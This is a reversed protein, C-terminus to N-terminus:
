VTLWYNLKLVLARNRNKFTDTFYNDTYVIFLDSMPKYRWQVRSNINFNNRQTNYQFFTTWFLNNTFNIETKPSILWLRTDGYEKPFHLLNYEINMAINWHPQSRVTVSSRIQNITGNYFQGVRIGSTFLINKRTDSMYEVNASNYFYTGPPLPKESPLPFYYRLNDQQMDFRFALMSTNRLFMFYRLRTFRDSLANDAYLNIANEMGINHRVIKKDKPYLYVDIPWYVQSFGNRITTDGSHYSDSKTAFTEIRNIFGMDAFYNKGFSAFDIFSFLNRGGYQIGANTFNAHGMIGPKQSLHHGAWGQWKGQQDSLNLEVGANRGFEGLPNSKLEDPKLSAQRNLAYTKITSRKLIRHHLSLASYNQPAAEGKRGTQMNMIGVRLNKNLNGSIRGGFLISIPQANDDLGIKRSFFPRFPPAGYSSFIDDNELFFTRREPFFINFRTLNTVQQDVDVQSFDPNVTLDLNLSPTISVKADFGANASAKTGISNEPDYSVKAITYPILSANGKVSPLDDEFTMTGLYGLDFGPFQVPVNTWTYFKNNKQDSRIINMGWVKNNADFRLTKFPLAMEVIYKDAHRKVNSLWKNDWAFSLGESDTNAGFQYESQVNFPTVAFGFGNSKKNMPDLIVAIGDALRISLDRKLTPAIFTNTSDYATIAIYLYRTDFAAQITTNLKARVQDSPFKEWFEGVSQARQWVEENLEGDIKLSQSSKYVQIHYKDQFANNQSFLINCFFLFLILCFPKM